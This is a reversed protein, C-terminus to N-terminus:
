AAVAVADLVPHAAQPGVRLEEGNARARRLDAARENALGHHPPLALPPVVGHPPPLPAPPHHFSPPPSNSAASPRRHSRRRPWVTLRLPPKGLPIPPQSAPQPRAAAVSSEAASAGRHPGVLRKKKPGRPRVRKKEKRDTWGAARRDRRHGSALQHSTGGGRWTAPPPGGAHGHPNGCRRALRQRPEEGVAAGDRAIARRFSTLGAAGRGACGM